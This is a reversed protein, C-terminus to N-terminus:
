FTWLLIMIEGKSNFFRGPWYKLLMNKFWHTDCCSIMCMFLVIKIEGKTHFLQGPWYKLVILTWGTWLICFFHGPLYKRSKNEFNSFPLRHLFTSWTLIKWKLNRFEFIAFPTFFNVLDINKVKLKSFWFNHAFQTHFEIQRLCACCGYM